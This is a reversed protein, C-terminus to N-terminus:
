NGKKGEEDKEDKGEDEIEKRKKQIIATILKVLEGGAITVLSVAFTILATKLTDLNVSQAVAMSVSSSVVFEALPMGINNM